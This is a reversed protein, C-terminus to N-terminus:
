ATNPQKHFLHKLQYILADRIHYQIAKSKFLQLLGGESCRKGDAGVTSEASYLVKYGKCWARFCIEPDSMFIFYDTDLGGLEKWLDGRIVLLSSQIWDVYQSRSYDFDELEYHKVYKRIVPLRRLPTRRAVQVIINPFNRVTGPTTGDDNIQRPGLIGIDPNEDMKIILESLTSPNNWSIDPNVLVIYRADFLAAADNCARTYGLNSESFQLHVNKYADLQLLQKKNEPDCSNDVICVETDPCNEQALLSEVNQVVRSAKFYDVIVIVASRQNDTTRLNM